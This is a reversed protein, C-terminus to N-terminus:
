RLMQGHQPLVASQCHITPHSGFPRHDHHHEHSCFSPNHPRLRKKDAVWDFSTSVMLFSPAVGSTIAPQSLTQLLICDCRPLLGVRPRGACGEGYWGLVEFGPAKSKPSNASGVLRRLKLLASNRGLAWVPPTPHRVSSSSVFSDHPVKACKRRSLTWM